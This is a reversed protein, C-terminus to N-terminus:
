RRRKSLVAKAETVLQGVISKPDRQFPMLGRDWEVLKALVCYPCGNGAREADIHEDCTPTSYTAVKVGPVGPFDKYPVNRPMTMTRTM